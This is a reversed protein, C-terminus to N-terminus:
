QIQEAKKGKNVIIAPLSYRFIVHLDEVIRVRDYKKPSQFYNILTGAFAEVYFQCLFTKFDSPLVLGKEKEVSTILSCTIDNFVACLFQKMGDRGISDYACHIIHQNADIYDMVFQAAEEYNVMLDFKKVVEVAEQELM